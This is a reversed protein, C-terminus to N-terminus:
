ISIKKVVFLQRRIFRWLLRIKSKHLYMKYYYSDAELNREIKEPHCIPLVSSSALNLGNFKNNKTHTADKGFGVNSILNENPNICLGREKWIAFMFQYDWADMGQKKLILFKDIWMQRENWSTFYYMLSKKFDDLSYKNLFLDFCKWARKWSAWGWTNSYASFYYSANGRKAGNQFNDGSIVMVKNNERYKELLNQCYLFFDPHPVCDDELIIGEEVNSFFWDIATAPGKACGLNDDHFLTKVECNWEIQNIIDRTKMCKEFDDSINKRPGDAAVYLYKPKIKKLEDFVIQTTDKRNFIILLIPTEFQVM